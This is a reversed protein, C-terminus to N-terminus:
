VDDGVGTGGNRHNRGHLLVSYQQQQRCDPKGVDNCHKGGVVSEGIRYRVAASDGDLERLPGSKSLLGSLATTARHWHTISNCAIRRRFVPRESRTITRRREAWSPIARRRRPAAQASDSRRVYQGTTVGAILSALLPLGADVFLNEEEWLLRGRTYLRVIGKPRM